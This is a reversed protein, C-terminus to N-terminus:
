KSALWALYRIMLDFREDEPFLDAIEEVEDMLDRAAAMAAYFNASM